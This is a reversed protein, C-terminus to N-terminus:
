QAQPSWQQPKRAFRLTACADQDSKRLVAVAQAIQPEPDFREITMDLHEAWAKIQPREIFTNLVPGAGSRLNALMADFVTWNRESELFSFVARGGPRLVRRIDMLYAYSEEHYLHTFVSFATVLDASEDACPLSIERNLIFRFHPPSKTSAYDM